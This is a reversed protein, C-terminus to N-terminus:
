PRTGKDQWNRNAVDGKGGNDVAVILPYGNYGGMTIGCAMAGVTCGTVPKQDERGILGLPPPMDITGAVGNQAELRILLPKGQEIDKIV